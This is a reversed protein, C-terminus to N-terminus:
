LSGHVCVIRHRQTCSQKLAPLLLKYSFCTTPHGSTSLFARLCTAVRHSSWPYWPIQFGTLFQFLSIFLSKSRPQLQISFVSQTRSMGSTPGSSFDGLFHLLGKQMVAPLPWFHSFRLCSFICILLWLPMVLLLAHSTFLVSCWLWKGSMFPCLWCLLLLKGFWVAQLECQLSLDKQCNTCCGCLLLLSNPIQKIRRALLFFSQGNEVTCHM